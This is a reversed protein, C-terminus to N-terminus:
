RSNAATPSLNMRLEALCTLCGRTEMFEDFGNSAPVDDGSSSARRAYYSVDFASMDIFGSCAGCVAEGCFRCHHCRRLNLARFPKDCQFCRDSDVWAMKTLRHMVVEPKAAQVLHELCGALTQLWKKYKKSISSEATQAARVRPSATVGKLVLKNPMLSLLLSVRVTTPASGADRPSTPDADPDGLEEIVFGSNRFHLRETRSSKPLEPIDKFNMSSLTHVGVRVRGPAPKTHRAFVRGRRELGAWADEQADEGDEGGTSGRRISDRDTGLTFGPPAEREFVDQYSMMTFDHHNDVGGLKNLVRLTLWHACYADDESFERWENGDGGEPDQAFPPPTSCTLKDLTVGGEFLKGFLKRMVEAYSNSSPADLFDLLETVDADLTAVARVLHFESPLGGGGRGFTHVTSVSPPVDSGSLEYLATQGKTGVFSWKPSAALLALDLADERLRALVRASPAHGSTKSETTRSMPPHVDPPLLLLLLSSSERIAHGISFTSCSV